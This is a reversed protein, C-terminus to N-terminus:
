RQQIYAALNAVFELNMLSHWDRALLALDALALVEGGNAGYNMIGAITATPTGALVSGGQMVFPVSYRSGNNLESIGSMLPHGSQTPPSWSTSLYADYSIGFREAVANMDSWDENADMEYDYFGWVAETNTLVLFGGNSVYQQLADIEHEQWTVDYSDVANSAGAYDMSPLVLVMAANSIDTVTFTVGYPIIDIDFGAQAMVMGFERLNIPITLPPENKAALLIIQKGSSTVSRMEPFPAPLLAAQLAINGMQEFVDSVERATAVDDYPDHIHGGYWIGGISEMEDDSAYIMNLNPVNLGDLVGNDSAMDLIMSHTEVGLSQAIQHMTNVWRSSEPDAGDAPWFAFQIHAQTGDMPRTLCDIQLNAITRDLLDSHTNAFHSSGYLGLEESGYWVLYLDNPPQIDNEDLVRAIELLIISGSGDDMAGPNGVSDIHASIIVARSSDAGPVRVVLNHSRAPSLVDTDWTVQAQSIKRLDDLNKIGASTLDELRVLIVPVALDAYPGNENAFSGHSEGAVTSNQTVLIVAKPNANFLPDLIRWSNSSDAHDDILAYPLLIIKGTIHSSPTQEFDAMSLITIAEGSPVQPNPLDDNLLGDSDLPMAESPHSLWGRIADAPFSYAKEDLTFSFSSGHMETTIYIAFNQLEFEVGMNQLNPLGEMEAKLFHLAELEGDTGSTRYGAGVQIGTLSALDTFMREINVSYRMEGLFTTPSSSDDPSGEAHTQQTSSVPEATIAPDLSTQSIRGCSVALTICILTMLTTRIFPRTNMRM